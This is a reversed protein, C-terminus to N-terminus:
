QLLAKPPSTPNKIAQVFITIAFGALYDKYIEIFNNFVHIILFLKNKVSLFRALM